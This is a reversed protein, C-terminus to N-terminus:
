VRSHISLTCSLRLDDSQIMPASPERFRKRTSPEPARHDGLPSRMAKTASPSGSPDCIKTRHISASPAIVCTVRTSRVGPRGDQDGSPSDIAKVIVTRSCFVHGISIGVAGSPAVHVFGGRMM